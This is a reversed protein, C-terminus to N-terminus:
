LVPPLSTIYQDVPSSSPSGGNLWLEPSSQIIEAASAPTGDAPNSIPHGYTRDFHLTSASLAGVVKLPNKCSTYDRIESPVGASISACTYVNGGQAIFAGELNTVSADIYINGNTVLEFRPIETVNTYSAYSINGSIYVNGNVKLTIHSGNALTGGAISVASGPAASATYTNSASPVTSGSTFTPTSTTTATQGYYDPLCSWYGTLNLDGGYGGSNNPSNAFALGSPGFPYVMPAGTLSSTGDANLATMFGKIAGDSLSAMQGGSGVATPYAHPYNNGYLGSNSSPTCSSGYGMGAAIDGGLVSIFPQYGVYISGQCSISNAAGGGSVTWYITYRGAATASVNPVSYSASGNASITGSTPLGGLSPTSSIQIASGSTAGNNATFSVTVVFPQGYIGPSPGSLASGCSLTAAPTWGFDLGSDTNLDYYYTNGGSSCTHSSSYTDAYQWEYSVGCHYQSNLTPGIFTSPAGQTQRVCYVQTSGIPFQYDGSSNAYYYFADGWSATDYPNSQKYGPFNVNGDSYVFYYGNGTPTSAIGSVPASEPYANHYNTASGYPYVTGSSTVIWYGDPASTTGTTFNYRNNYAIGTAYSSTPPNNYSAGYINNGKSDQYVGPAHVPQSGGLGHSTAAGYFHSSPIGFNFVGGDSAVLAYGGNSDDVSIGTIMGSFSIQAGQSDKYMSGRFQADGFTFVGGDSGVLLYGKGDPTSAIGTIREHSSVGYPDTQGAKAMLAPLSNYYGADGFTFVGGDAGVLWYGKGDPTTAMDTIYEPSTQPDYRAENQMCSYYQGGPIGAGTQTNYTRGSVKVFTPQAPPLGTVNITITFQETNQPCNYDPASYHVTDVAQGNVICVLFGNHWDVIGT